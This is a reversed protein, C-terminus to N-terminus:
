VIQVKAKSVVPSKEMKPSLMFFVSCHGLELVFKVLAPLGAELSLYTLTEQNPVGWISIEGVALRSPTVVWNWHECNLCLICSYLWLGPSWNNVSCTVSYFHSFLLLSLWCNVYTGALGLPCSGAKSTYCDSIWCDCKGQTYFLSHVSLLSVILNCNITSTHWLSSVFLLNALAM